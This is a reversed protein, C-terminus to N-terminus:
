EGTASLRFATISPTTTHAALQCSGGFPIYYPVDTGPCPDVGTAGFGDGNYTFDVKTATTCTPTGSPACFVQGLGFRYSSEFALATGVIAVVSFASIMIKIRKM